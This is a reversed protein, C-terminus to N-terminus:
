QLSYSNNPQGNIGGDRELALIVDPMSRGDVIRWRHVTRGLLSILQSELLTLRYHRTLADIASPSLSSPISVIVEGSQLPRKAGGVDVPRATASGKGRDGELTAGIATSGPRGAEFPFLVATLMVTLVGAKAIFPM